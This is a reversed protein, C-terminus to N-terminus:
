SSAMFRVGVVVVGQIIVAQVAVVVLIAVVIMVDDTIAMFVEVAVVKKFFLYYFIM